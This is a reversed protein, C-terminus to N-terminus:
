DKYRVRSGVAVDWHRPNSALSISAGGIPANNRYRAVAWKAWLKDAQSLHVIVEAILRDYVVIQVRVPVDAELRNSKILKLEAM